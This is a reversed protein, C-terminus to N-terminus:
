LRDQGLTVPTRVEVSHEQRDDVLPIAKDDREIGDVTVTMGGNAARTQLVAIHYVTERYRYHVKFAKWDAPLCPAFHLKDVELRLGLLSEVILRYMWGASGTYWTWGGRGTHPSLAYVDAAMVYPEVKYTAMAEATRAHNVPNIMSLLEWARRSDGLAAFAMAAWIAGHTYQGGNERVGPVYGKIYGPNLNSNDFPPDLLQILAHDRRVLRKDVAEMAMRSRGADGGGSLVSWSQAVSDIRCESNSASGLPSGDDFYARRYWAGDWGNQEINRRVQDAVSRCRDAFAADGRTRAVESFRMLVEYLFFGLWVSEGKGQEGVLNMGDNWDGSGILPLGHEGFKLGKKIARVCHEYLSAAEESRVPLDYYSDEDANVQRGELFHVPEDLVGTDGTNLVYRCTALPLWLYDDSCHTRVGRNSPPHWWHQVDGDRFQHTAARLLHERVLHPEAHILAMVDQLQDRFGFAGGPQYFASRAWLRCALTQYLLWGNTIINLSEDPTEVHVAGLTHKWYQWVAELAGHAAASGRFRNVLKSADEADRGAGLMFIFEREEGNALEFPVQVAACPDLAAGMKGSLQVQFMAAPSRLTGNRGLFETRDCSVTRSADDVHFFAVRDAFETNYPNRAFLAESSPDVETVVHMTSKPRLEGLVWEVYGTASLRCHRGSENRVKLITFKIPADLAVFVTLESRIRHETHEFVSYGFGHRSAYPMAGRSPLPMPSWFHGSEEDRIYFAEGSSDSVPDNNWPTLRFEHANESWTCASGSESVITGLQPNALVNVWPAPTVQGPATSIVYERGDSTFGGVGNSFILDRRPLAAAAKPEARGIRSPALRPVLVEVPRRHNIQDALSGRSDTIIARAVSELLIRDENSIQEPARVFIGGPRNTVNAEIGAAILGMIQDHLLQRYGAHDENWIVLDVSLGKLRWYAHAQVLQRVLDINAPNGIRLLVIPLDGSISYSWLGSQGRRNKVLVSPDARLSSNAYLISSALRAYLQADAETANLQQLVVQSHTWALEFVRDALRRDQYKEVLGLCADRTEGIGSVVNVPASEGPDLIIRSRIAVIPDLVSGQSGSLTASGLMAKPDAVTNGRGIFQLRDTEYSVEEINAGQVGLLHFMWPTPENLSRPRRTCLIARQQSIIETQVFLNSFAPHLADAAPSALVVEAYSTLDIARRTQSRNTVTIRRLEIDDEPSVAIETHTEIDHDRRRFEARAESFIAEYKELGKHTPQYATSWVNGSTVDRIYCFMGWNDCTSDERWRTVAINQWRSYGGGANTVMVHYRGNSLLQLEPIPSDPGSFVRIPAETGISIRSFDSLEVAQSFTATVKPIREQLLLMTAQFLPDSEFRRQMPRDLLLYALALFSMGQHHTMFSRVVTSSQGRPQRFPTYDIAEYFGYRGEFGDASLRQLNLCAEEPAVMLALASAYPAIVLDEALGRRLGLGPVGFARYQYNLHVDVANYGSESIGWPVGRTRGYEIQRSVVAKCTQNLLTNEYTPMVLLPMLYEFMSGGWSLLIPDGGASTLLRGLAFWSEQPLRGQAITVFSALRAESALLDYYSSDRRHESVNYGIALLHRAKDYLFDYEMHSLQSASQELKEIAAIREKAHRSAEVISSRLEGLWANEEPNRGVLLQYEIAPLMKTDFGALERLTPIEDLGPIESAPNKPLSLSTWPTLFMLEDLAAQCQRALASAWWIAQSGPDINLSSVVAATSRVLRGLYQRAADLTTPRSSLVLERQLGALEAPAAEGEVEVLIKLTDDLGDFFRPALIRHDLLELLGPRLTLLLGALNGSDVSSVYAPLLPKLSKTDYWNYFHGRYRELSEMTDFAKGTREILKGAPIYGFDYASLNALLALGMNTPSTRHAIVAAPHEQFNDPPLWHDEPGVFTEFYAWTKRSLKQLFITQSTTLRAARRALPRSIWWAIIPSLFWLALIPGAIGLAAPRSLALDIVAATAVVPGIWMTRCSAVLGTRNDQDRSSSPSWELLRRRTLLMRGATRAIADLSFFAEYPLCVLTFASQTFHRAARRAVTAIHQRRLLDGPKRILDLICAILSPILTIGIVSLVWLWPSSLVMTGLLLLLALAAPVLSRRLNDFIKWASLASIPNKQRRGGFGPVKPLLWRAIQWDGRIWRHRRCVDLSYRSPYEEFLQVDSLLGSRAYCGELLDHSLIRNEPFHGNLAREFADVDYIGKGIFSGEHFLDQYVDSVARTYPDIGPESGFLQSYLSRSAGPLSAAVRPQLIGYGECIRQKAKDYRARNLPHAMTGVFQWASDRPLQTDTDLTIVYKVNSLVATEGVLASFHDRSGGRLLSNLDALKGRKREYGMWIRESPNWRRPRHFLFFPNGKAGRYKGNLEEIRKQAFRLLPMDEPITEDQADLFDTLLGFHLNQDRNALYRVELAEVLDEINQTSTLMTPIVVLTRSEPPIGRSFDMRPLSHPAVLLMALWNVLAVALHSGGLLSFVGILALQWHHLGGAHTNALLGGAIAATILTIAGLYLPLPFQSSIRKFAGPISPRVKVTRELEPLGRNILYFGVHAERDDSGKRAAGDLALQIAKHAIEGEPLPSNKAMKEVVHRYRDRTTFDMRGYAGGPDARLTQEVVSMTEVFERWDMTALFRLSGISNSISVQDAAQQQNESQVLKDITLSSESLQQEIWTLPLALSPSQGQLRRAFEAVFSSVMPPSSRAMDAIALILSKPDKEAIELMQDAWYDARNRDTRDIAVRVAIRRLNEILALRLMIPIAWLEGLKLAIGTQYAAVFSSLNEPDVHGDGHSIMELAIDYVRPLGASPGNLLRPLERSYGKPLHRRATRIQEEILYFNDLLWEGAPTIRRNAKVADELLNRVKILVGENEALRALLLDADRGIGLKHLGALAKGHPEMRARSFLESQLLSEDSKCKKALGPRRLRLGFHLLSHFISKGAKM